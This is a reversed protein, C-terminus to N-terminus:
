RVPPQRGRLLTRVRAFAAPASEGADAPSRLARYSRITMGPPIDCTEYRFAHRLLRDSTPPEM